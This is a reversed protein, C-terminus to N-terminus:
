NLPCLSLMKLEEKYSLSKRQKNDNNNVWIVLTSEQNKINQDLASYPLAWPAEGGDGKQPKNFTEAYCTWYPIWTNALNLRGANAQM